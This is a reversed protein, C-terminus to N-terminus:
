LILILPKIIAWDSLLQAPNSSQLQVPLPPCSTSTLSHRSAQYGVDTHLVRKAYTRRATIRASNFEAAPRRRASDPSAAAYIRVTRSLSTSLSCVHAICSEDFTGTGRRGEGSLGTGQRPSSTPGWLSTPPWLPVLIGGIFWDTLRKVPSGRHWATSFHM